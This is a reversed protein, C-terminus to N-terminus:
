AAHAPGAPPSRCRIIPRPLPQAPLPRRRLSPSHCRPCRSLHVGTLQQLQRQWAPIEAAAEIARLPSPTTAAPEALPAAALQIARPLDNCPTPVAVVPIRDPHNRQELVARAKALRTRVNGSAYLGYHRVKTFGQPLVHQVFRYVFEPGDLTCTNGDKTAFTVSQSDVHILRQDSIAVRYIYRGLYQFLHKPGAEPAQAFPLWKTAYLQGTLRAFAEPQALAACTGEFRLLNRQHAQRLADLFKGRFLAGIVDLPFLFKPDRLEVWRDTDASLGGGTVICHLHPHLLMERTWTHLVATIGLQAGLWKPNRGLELLTASATDFLTKFLLAGNCSFLPRLQEPLTFVVHFHGTPLVTASRQEVWTAQALSQCSPCHRDRCGHFILQTFGCSDCVEVHGGLAPTHCMRIHGLVRLQEATLVHRRRCEAEFTRIVDAVHLGPSPAEGQSAPRHTHM